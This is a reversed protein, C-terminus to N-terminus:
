SGPESRFLIQVSGDAASDSSVSISGSGTLVTEDRHVLVPRGHQQPESTRHAFSPPVGLSGSQPQGREFRVDRLQVLPIPTMTGAFASLFKISLSVPSVIWNASPAGM